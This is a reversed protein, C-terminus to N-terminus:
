SDGQNIVDMDTGVLSMDDVPVYNESEDTMDSSAYDKAAHISELTMEVQRMTPSDRSELKVCIAALLSIDIVEGDGERVV